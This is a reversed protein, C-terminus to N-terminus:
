GPNIRSSLIQKALQFNQSYFLFLLGLVMLLFVLLAEVALVFDERREFYGHLLLCAVLSVAAFVALFSLLKLYWRNITAIDDIGAVVEAPSGQEIKEVGALTRGHVTHAQDASRRLRALLGELRRAAKSLDGRDPVCFGKRTKLGFPPHAPIESYGLYVPVVRHTNPDERVLEVAEAIEQRQYEAGATNHSVLIVSVLTSQLVQPLVAPFNSGLDMSEDEVDLFVRAPPALSSAPPTLEGKLNLAADRDPGAHSLFFDWVYPAATQQVM